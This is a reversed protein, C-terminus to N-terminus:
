ATEYSDKINGDDIIFIRSEKGQQQLLQPIKELSTDSIFVQGIEDSLTISLLDAVRSDDLKDFIDDLILIPKVQLIEKILDYQALKIAMIFSKLQGQSAYPKLVIDDIFFSLDDKHIGETTRGLLLDKEESVRFLEKLDVELLESKYICQCAEKNRAITAYLTKFKDELKLVFVRRAECIFKADPLMKESIGDLLIRNFVGNEKFQKLLANRQKLLYNYRIIASLYAKDYQVITQDMLRRREESGDTLLMIDSPAIVVAPCTGMHDSLRDYKKDNVSMSKQKGAQVQVKVKFKKAAEFEGIVSFENTSKRIVHRDGSSFYSKGQSLYYISDQLNTKGSGNNGIFVNMKPHFDVNLENYNRYNYLRLKTISLLNLLKM